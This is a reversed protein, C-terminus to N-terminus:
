RELHLWWSKEREMADKLKRASETKLKLDKVYEMAEPYCKSYEKAQFILELKDADEVFDKVEEYSSRLGEVIPDPLLSLQDELVRRSDITIYKKSLKHLDLTRAEPLDHLLTHLAARSAVQYSSTELFAILFAIIGASMSHEAVSEPDRIGVKLWGARPINKLTMAEQIFRAIKRYEM